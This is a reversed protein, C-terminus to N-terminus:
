KYSIKDIDVILGDGFAYGSEIEIEINRPNIIEFGIPKGTRKGYKVHVSDCECTFNEGYSLSFIIMGSIKM